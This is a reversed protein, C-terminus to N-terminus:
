AARISLYGSVFYITRIRVSTIEIKILTKQKRDDIKNGQDNIIKISLPSLAAEKHVKTDKLM